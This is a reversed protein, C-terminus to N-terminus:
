SANESQDNYDYHKGSVDLHQITEHTTLTVNREADVWSISIPKMVCM